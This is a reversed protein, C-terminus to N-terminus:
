IEAMLYNEMENRICFSRKVVSKINVNGLVIKRKYVFIRQM